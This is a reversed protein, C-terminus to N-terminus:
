VKLFYTGANRFMNLRTELSYVHKPKSSNRNGDDDITLAVNLADYINLAHQLYEELALSAPTNLRHLKEIVSENVLNLAFPVSQKDPPVLASKPLGFLEINDRICQTSILRDAFM